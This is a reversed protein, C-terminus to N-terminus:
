RAAGASPVRSGHRYVEHVRRRDRTLPVCYAGGVAPSSSWVRGGVVIGVGPHPDFYLLVDADQRHEDAACRFWGAPLGTGPAGASSCADVLNAWPDRVDIEFHDRLIVLAVGLCDLEVGPLRGGVVHRSRRLRSWFERPAPM